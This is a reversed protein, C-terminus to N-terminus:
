LTLVMISQMLRPAPPQRKICAHLADVATWHCILASAPHQPNCAQAIHRIPQHHLLQLTAVGAEAAEGTDLTCDEPQIYFVKGLMFMNM